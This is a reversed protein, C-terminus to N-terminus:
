RALPSCTHIYPMAAVLARSLLLAMAAALLRSITKNNM